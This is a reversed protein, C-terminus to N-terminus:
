LAYEDDNYKRKSTRKVHREYLKPAREKLETLEIAYEQEYPERLEDDLEKWMTSVAGYFEGKKGGSRLFHRRAESKFKCFPTKILNRKEYPKVVWGTSLRLAKEEEEEPEEETDSEYKRKKKVRKEKKTKKNKRRRESSEVREAFFNGEGSSSEEQEDCDDRRSRARRGKLKKNVYEYLGNDHEFRSRRGTDKYKRSKKTHKKRTGKTEKQVVVECEDQPETKVYITLEHKTVNNSM